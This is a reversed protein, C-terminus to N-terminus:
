FRIKELTTVNNLVNNNNSGVTITDNKMQESIYDVIQYWDWTKTMVFTMFRSAGYRVMQAIFIIGNVAAAGIKSSDFGLLKLMGGMLSNEALSADAAGEGLVVADQRKNNPKGAAKAPAFTQSVLDAINNSIGSPLRNYYSRHSIFLRRDNKGLMKLGSNINDMFSSRITSAETDLHFSLCVACVLLVKKWM